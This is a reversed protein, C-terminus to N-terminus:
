PAEMGLLAERNTCYCIDERGSMMRLFEEMRGWSNHIDFEYAHGWVYFIQKKEPKMQLFQEGLEFMKDMEGHHYVSPCFDILDSQEDFGFSSTTNRAYRIGTRERVLEIVRTDIDHSGGPYAMGVVEYGCLESLILRDQEVERVLTNDRELASLNPHTLSHAAVEHGAYVHKVDAHAIKNHTIIVGEREMDRQESLRASNLNFTAKMGYKNFLEILRIDQTVGDDYSFTLFKKKKM